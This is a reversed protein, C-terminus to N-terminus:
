FNLGENKQRIVEQCVQEQQLALYAELELWRNSMVPKGRPICAAPTFLSNSKQWDTMKQNLKWFEWQLFSSSLQKRKSSYSWRIKLPVLFFIKLLPQPTWLHRPRNQAVIVSYLLRLLTSYISIYQKVTKSSSFGLTLSCADTMRRCFPSPCLASSLSSGTM